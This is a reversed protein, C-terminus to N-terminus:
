TVNLADLPANISEASLNFGCKSLIPVGFKTKLSNVLV